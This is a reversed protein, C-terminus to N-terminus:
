FKYTDECEAGLLIRKLVWRGVAAALNLKLAVVKMCCVNTKIGVSEHLLGLKLAVVKMWGAKM